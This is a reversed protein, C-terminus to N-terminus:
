LSFLRALGRANRDAFKEEAKERALTLQVQRQRLEQIRPALDDIGLRNTELADYLSAWDVRSKRYNM